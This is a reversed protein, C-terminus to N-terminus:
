FTQRIKGSYLRCGSIREIPHGSFGRLFVQEKILAPANPVVKKIEQKM